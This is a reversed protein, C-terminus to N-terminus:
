KILFQGVKNALHVSLKAYAKFIVNVFKSSHYMFACGVFFAVGIMASVESESIAMLFFFCLVVSLVAYCMYVVTKM